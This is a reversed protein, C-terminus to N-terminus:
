NLSLGHVHEDIHQHTPLSQNYNATKDLFLNIAKIKKTKNQCDYTYFVM